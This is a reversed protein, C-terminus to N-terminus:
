RNMWWISVNLLVAFTLWIVYPYFLLAAFKSVRHFSLATLVVAAWLVVIELFAIGIWHLGFFLPSWALNLLLQFIFWMLAWKVQRNEIGKRWICFAAVGMLIYLITWVPGFIWAPPTFVPKNLAEYWGGPGKNVSFLSGSLGVCITAGCCILLKRLDGAKM